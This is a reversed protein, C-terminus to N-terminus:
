RGTETETGTETKTMCLQPPLHGCLRGQLSALHGCPSARVGNKSSTHVLASPLPSPKGLHRPPIPLTLPQPTNPLPSHSRTPTEMLSNELLGPQGGLAWAPGWPQSMQPGLHHHGSGGRQEAPGALPLCKGCFLTVGMWAPVAHPTQFSGRPNGCTLSGRFEEGTGGQLEPKEVMAMPLPSPTDHASMSWISPNLPRSACVCVCVCPPFSGLSLESLCFGPSGGLSPHVFHHILAPGWHGRSQAGVIFLVVTALDGEVGVCGWGCMGM